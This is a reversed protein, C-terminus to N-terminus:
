KTFRALSMTISFSQGSNSSFVEIKSKGKVRDAQSTTLRLAVDLECSVPNVAVARNRIVIEGEGAAPMNAPGVRLPQGIGDLWAAQNQTTTSM